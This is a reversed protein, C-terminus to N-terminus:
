ILSRREVKIVHQGTGAFKQRLVYDGAAVGECGIHPNGLLLHGAKQAYM